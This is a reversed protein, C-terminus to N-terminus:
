FLREPVFQAGCTHKVLPTLVDIRKIAMKSPAGESM